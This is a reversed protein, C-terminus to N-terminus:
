HIGRACTIIVSRKKIADHMLSDVGVFPSQIWRLKKAKEAVENSIRYAFLIEADEIEKILTDEDEAVICSIEGADGIKRLYRDELPFAIVVKIM